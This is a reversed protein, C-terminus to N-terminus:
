LCENSSKNGLKKYTERWVCPIKRRQSQKVDHMMEGNGNSMVGLCVERSTEYARGNLIILSLNELYILM